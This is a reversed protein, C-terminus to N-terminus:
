LFSYSYSYSYSFSPYFICFTQFCNPMEYSTKDLASVEGFENGIFNNASDVVQVANSSTEMTTTPELLAVFHQHARDYWTAIPPKFASSISTSEIGNETRQLPTDASSFEGVVTFTSGISVM